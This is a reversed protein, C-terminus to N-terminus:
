RGNLLNAYQSASGGGEQGSWSGEPIARLPPGMEGVVSASFSVGGAHFLERRTREAHAGRESRAHAAHAGRESRAHAAHAGRESRAHAAQAGRESRRHAANAGRTRRTQEVM